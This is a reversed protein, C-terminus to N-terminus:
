GSARLLGETATTPPPVNAAAMTEATEATGPVATGVAAKVAVAVATAAERLWRSLATSREAQSVESVEAYESRRLAPLLLSPEAAALDANVVVSDAPLFYTGAAAPEGPAGDSSRVDFEDCPDRLGTSPRTSRGAKDMDCPASTGSPTVQVGCVAGHEVLVEVAATGWRCDVGSEEVAHLLADRVTAWGGIPYFVGSDSSKDGIPGLEIAQLAM